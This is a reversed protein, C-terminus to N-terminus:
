TSSLRLIKAGEPHEILLWLDGDPSQVVDRIRGIERLLTERHVPRGDEMAVRYLEHAKLSGVIFDGQWAPFRPGRCVILSSLAPSPTFDVVPPEVLSTDYPVGYQKWGDVPAGTSAAYPGPHTPM